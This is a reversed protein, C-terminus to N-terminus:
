ELIYKTLEYTLLLCSLVTKNYSSVKARSFFSSSLKYVFLRRALRDFYYVAPRDVQLCGVSNLFHHPGNQSTASQVIAPLRHGEDKGSDFQDLQGGFVLRGHV